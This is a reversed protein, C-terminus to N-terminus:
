GDRAGAENPTPYEIARLWGTINTIPTSMGGNISYARDGARRMLSWEYGVDFRNSSCSAGDKMHERVLCWEGEPMPGTNWGLRASIAMQHAMGWKWRAHWMLKGCLAYAGCALTACGVIVGLWGMITIADMM